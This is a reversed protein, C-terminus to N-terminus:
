IHQFIDKLHYLYCLTRAGENFDRGHTEVPPSCANVETSQSFELYTIINRRNQLKLHRHTM